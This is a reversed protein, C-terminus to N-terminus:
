FEHTYNEMDINVKMLQEQEQLCTNELELLTKERQVNIVEM